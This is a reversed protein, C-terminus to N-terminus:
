AAKALEAVRDWTTAKISPRENMRALWAVLNANSATLAAWEPTESLFDLQPAIHIDALTM